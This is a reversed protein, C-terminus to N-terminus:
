GSLSRCSSQRHQLPPCALTQACEPCPWRTADRHEAWLDVRQESTDLTVRDISWPAQIGLITDFLKTDQM